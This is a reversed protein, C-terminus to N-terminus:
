AHANAGPFCFHGCPHTAPGSNEGLGGWSWLWSEKGGYSGIGEMKAFPFGPSETIIIPECIITTHAKLPRSRAPPTPCAWKCAISMILHCSVLDTQERAAKLIKEKQKINKSSNRKCGLAMKLLVTIGLLEPLRAQHNLHPKLIKDEKWQVERIQSDVNKILIPFNSAMILKAM